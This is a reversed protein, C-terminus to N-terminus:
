LGIELVVVSKAPLRIGLQGHDLRAGNFPVPRVADPVAFTNQADMASATLVRGVVSRPTEGVIKATVTAARNPDLNVLALYIQNASGRAASADVSRLSTGGYRYPPASVDVPLLTSGQFPRYMEFVHYTPTLVMRDKDTLITAQLVNVMQAINAMRVRDAHAQFVDLNLAAFVADRLTSLQYLFAPNTGPEADYWAGWEDVFLGIRKEPDYRDMIAAHKTILEDMRSAGKLTGIWEGEGFALAAGKHDWRGTPVTYSHLTLADMFASAQSMMVETWHFDDVNAGSAVRAPSNDKPGRIYTAYQRYLDAYYEPRMSGGCGWPENGAAFFPIRWPRDRGNKRRLEALTSRTDSTMYEIWDATERPSGTGVNGTVYARAGILEAFDLFEHTGFANTEEVGGWTANVSVPRGARPGVGDRWHYTDAFCGGPWRIVPVRLARLASLVDNRYGRTNPIPSSEGVWVGEYIGRGLHEAFQGHLNPDIKAGPRDAHVALEVSVPGVSQANSMSPALAGLLAAVIGFCRRWLDFRDM